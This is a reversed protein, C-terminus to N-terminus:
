FVLSDAFGVYINGDGDVVCSNPTANFGFNAQLSAQLLNGAPGFKSVSNADFNTTYLNKAADFCAGTEEYSGSTTVLTDLLTGSHNFHRLRGEQNPPIGGDDEDGPQSGLGVAFDGPSFAVQAQALSYPALVLLSIFLLIVYRISRSTARRRRQGVTTSSAMRDAM